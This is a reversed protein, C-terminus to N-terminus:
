GILIDTEPYYVGDNVRRGALATLLTLPGIRGMFMLISIILRGPTSLGSTIGRSVGVTAFASVVEFVIDQFPQEESISLFFVGAFITSVAFIFLVLANSSTNRTLTYEFIRVRDRGTLRSKLYSFVVAVTNVKMGGATSGSAGGIIMLFLSLMLAASGLSAFNMTNFGATRLTVTQFFALLYQRGVPEASLSNRYELGYFILVGATLLILNVLLVVRTNLQLQLGRKGSIGARGSFPRLKGPIKMLDMMVAFSLGGCIILFAVGLNVPINGAFGELSDSFLAFGANCFASVSHFVAFWASKGLAMGESFFSFFLWLAGLAEISFTLTIIQLLSRSVRNLDDENTMYSILLKDQLSFSRRLAWAASYSLIMIGLGGIQILILIGAQGLLTFHTATDVVILGTVCVASTTTFLADIFNLGSGDVTTVPLMLFFTGVLIVMLFSLVLTQAPHITLNNLLASIRRIRGFVKFLMFFNRVVILGAIQFGSELDPQIVFEVYKNYTFLILFAASFLTSALNNKLWIGKYPASILEFILELLIFFALTFDVANTFVGIFPSDIEAQELFLSIISLVFTFIIVPTLIKRINEIRRSRAPTEM